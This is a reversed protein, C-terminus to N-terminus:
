RGPAKPAMMVVDQARSKPTVDLKELRGDRYVARVTTRLPAHLKFDVDWGRPWAPLVLIKLKKAAGATPM